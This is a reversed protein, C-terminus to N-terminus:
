QKRNRNHANSMYRKKKNWKKTIKTRTTRKNTKKFRLSM